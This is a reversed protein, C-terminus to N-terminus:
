TQLKSTSAFWRSLGKIVKEAKTVDEVDERKAVFDRVFETTVEGLEFELDRAEDVTEKM